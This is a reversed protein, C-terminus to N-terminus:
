PSRTAWSKETTVNAEDTLKITIGQNSASFWFVAM